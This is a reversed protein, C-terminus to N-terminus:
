CEKCDDSLIDKIYSRVEQQDAERVLTGLEVAMEIDEDTFDSFDDNM